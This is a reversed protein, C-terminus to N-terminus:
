GRVQSSGYALSAARFLCFFIKFFNKFLNKISLIKLLSHLSSSVLFFFSFFTSMREILSRNDWASLVLVKLIM